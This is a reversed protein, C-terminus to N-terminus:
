HGISIRHFADRPEESRLGRLHQLRRYRRSLDDLTGACPGLAGSPKKPDASEVFHLAALQRNPGERLREMFVGRDPQGDATGPRLLLRQSCQDFFESDASGHVPAASDWFLFDGGHHGRMVCKQEGAEPISRSVDHQFRHGHSHGNDSKSVVSCDFYGRRFGGNSHRHSGGSPCNGGHLIPNELQRAVAFERPLHSNCSLVSDFLHKRPLFLRSPEVSHERLGHFLLLNEVSQLLPRKLREERNPAYEERQHESKSNGNEFEAHYAGELGAGVFNHFVRKGSQAVNGGCIRHQRFGEAVGDDGDVGVIGLSAFPADLDNFLQGRFRCVFGFGVGPECSGADDIWDEFGKQLLACAVQRRATM